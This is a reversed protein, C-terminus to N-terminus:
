RDVNLKGTPVYRHWKMGSREVVDRFEATGADLMRKLHDHHPIDKRLASRGKYEPAAVLYEGCAKFCESPTAVM